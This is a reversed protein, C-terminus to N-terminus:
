NFLKVFRTPSSARNHSTGHITWIEMEIYGRRYQMKHRSSIGLPQYLWRGIYCHGTKLHDWSGSM